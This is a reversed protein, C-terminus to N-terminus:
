FKVPSATVMVVGTPNVSTVFTGRVNYNGLDRHLFLDRLAYKEVTKTFGIEELTVTVNSPGGGVAKNFFVVAYCGDVLPRCWVDINGVSIVRRGMKGLADQDVAIVEKNLLIEKAEDSITRLDASMMLPAAFISWMAMQSKSQDYSLGFDGIVLMDPDNWGGPGAAAILKDQENTYFNIVSLVSDWSDNIDDFNRWLNCNERILNYNPKILVARQYLPWECSYFIPRGTKNLARTMEPYGKDMTWPLSNCGDFKLYDIGWDAFTQADIDMYNLSGPYGACTLLGYDEYIGLKLGKSHAYDALSKIGNPFRTSNATLRNNEDREHSMWCDDLNVYEYGVDKYGGSAIRDIMDRFLKEGICNNPDNNCDINCRFREWDNWGMPPTRALGNDLATVIQVLYFAALTYVLWAMM